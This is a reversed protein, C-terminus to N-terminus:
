KGQKIPTKRMYLVSFYCMCNTILTELRCRGKFCFSADSTPFFFLRRDVNFATLRYIKPTYVYLM